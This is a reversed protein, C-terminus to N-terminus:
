KIIFYPNSMNITHYIVNALEEPSIQYKNNGFYIKGVGVFGSIIFALSIKSLGAGSVFDNDTYHNEVMELIKLELNHVNKFVYAFFELDGEIVKIVKKIRAKYPTNTDLFINYCKIIHGECIEYLVSEISDFHAYFTTRNIKANNCINKITIKEHGVEKLLLSTSKKIRQISDQSRKNDKKNM